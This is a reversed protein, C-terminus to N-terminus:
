LIEEIKEKSEGLKRVVHKATATPVTSLDIGKDRIANLLGLIITEAKSAHEPWLFNVVGPNEEYSRIEFKISAFILGRTVTVTNIDRTLMPFINKFFLGKHVVVIKTPFVIVKDPFLQFPFVSSLEYLIKNDDEVMKELKQVVQKIEQKEKRKAEHRIEKDKQDELAVKKNAKGSRRNNKSSLARGTKVKTPHNIFVTGSTNTM